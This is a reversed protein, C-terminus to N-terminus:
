TGESNGEAQVICFALIGSLSEKPKGTFTNVCGEFWGDSEGGGRTTIERPWYPLGVLTTTTTTTTRHAVIVISVVNFAPPYPLVALYTQWLHPSNLSACLGCVLGRRKRKERCCLPATPFLPNKVCVPSSVPLSIRPLLLVFKGNITSAFDKQQQQQGGFPHAFVCLPFFNSPKKKGRGLFVFVFSHHWRQM